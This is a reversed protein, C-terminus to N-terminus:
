GHQKIGAQNAIVKSRYQLMKEKSSSHQNVYLFTSQENWDEKLPFQKSVDKM